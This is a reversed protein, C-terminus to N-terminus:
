DQNAEVLSAQSAARSIRRALFLLLYHHCPRGTCYITAGIMDALSARIIAYAEAHVAFCTGNGRDYSTESCVEGYSFRGRPCAGASKCGPGKPIRNAGTSVMKGDRVIIAGVERRTCDAQEAVDRCLGLWMEDPSESWIIDNM